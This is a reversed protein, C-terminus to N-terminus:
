LVDSEGTYHGNVYVSPRAPAAPHGRPTLFEPRLERVADAASTGQVAKLDTAVLRDSPRRSHLFESADTPSAHERGVTAQACGSVVALVAVLRVVTHVRM